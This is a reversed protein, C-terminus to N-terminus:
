RIKEKLVDIMILLDQTSAYTDILYKLESLPHLKVCVPLNTLYSVEQGKILDLYIYGGTAPRKNILLGTGKHAGTMGFVVVYSRLLWQEDQPVTFFTFSAASTISVTNEIVEWEGLHPEINYTPVVLESFAFREPTLERLKLKDQIQQLIIAKTIEKTM